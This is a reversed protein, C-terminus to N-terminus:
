RHPRGVPAEMAAAAELVVVDTPELTLTEGRRVTRGSLLDAGGTHQTLSWMFAGGTLTDIPARDFARHNEDWVPRPWQELDDDGGYPIRATRPLTM